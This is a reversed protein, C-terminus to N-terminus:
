MMRFAESVGNHFHPLEKQQTFQSLLCLALFFLVLLPKFINIIRKCCQEVFPERLSDCPAQLTTVTDSSQCLMLWCLSKQLPSVGASSKYRPRRTSQYLVIFCGFPFRYPHVDPFAKSRACKLSHQIFIKQPMFVSGPSVPCEKQLSPIRQLAERVAWGFESLQWHYLDSLM